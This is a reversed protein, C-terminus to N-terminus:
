LLEAETFEMMADAAPGSLLMDESLKSVMADLNEEMEEMIESPDSGVHIAHIANKSLRIIKRSEALALERKKEAEALAESVEKVDDKLGKM